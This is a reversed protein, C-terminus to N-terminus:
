PSNLPANYLYMLRITFYGNNKDYKLPIEEASKRLIRLYLIEHIDTWHSGFQEMRVSLCVSLCVSMHLLYCDNECNQPLAEFGLLDTSRQGPVSSLLLPAGEVAMISALRPILKTSAYM